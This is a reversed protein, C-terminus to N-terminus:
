REHLQPRGGAQGPQPPRLAAAALRAATPRCRRTTRRPARRPPGPRLWPATPRARTSAAAPRSPRGETIYERPSRKKGAFPLGHGSGIGIGGGDPQRQDDGREQNGYSMVGPLAPVHRAALREEGHRHCRGQQQQAKREFCGGDRGLRLEGPLFQLEDQQEGARGGHGAQHEVVRVGPAPQGAAIEEQEEDQKENALDQGEDGVRLETPARQIFIGVSPEQQVERRGAGNECGVPHAQEHEIHGDEQGHEDARRLVPPRDRQHQQPLGACTRREQGVRRM